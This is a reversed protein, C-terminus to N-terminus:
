FSTQFHGKTGYLMMCLKLTHYLDFREQSLFKNTFFSFQKRDFPFTKPNIIIM